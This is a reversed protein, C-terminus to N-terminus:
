DITAAEPFQLRQPEPVGPAIPVAVTAAPAPLAVLRDDPAHLATEAWAAVEDDHTFLIVQREGSLHHLVELLERKRDGDCQATVEDLLLPAHEGTTVLHQAMAVRLLLYIQERTGESLLRAQRWQGTGAEKVTVSLDSPDVSIEAYRGGSVAPLWRAVAQGLVPALDRHVREEAARLLQLTTDIDLALAEIRALEANAAASAEEADVVDPLADRREKLAGTALDV